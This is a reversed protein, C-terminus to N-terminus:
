KSANKRGLSRGAIWALVAVVLLPFIMGLWALPDAFDIQADTGPGGALAAEAVLRGEAAAARAVAPKGAVIAKVIARLAKWPAVARAAAGRPGTENFLGRVIAQALGLAGSRRAPVVPVESSAVPTGGARSRNPATSREMAADDTASREAYAGDSRPRLRDGEARAAPKSDFFTADLTPRAVVRYAGPSELGNVIVVLLALSAIAIVSSLAVSLATSWRQYTIALGPQRARSSATVRRRSWFVLRFFGAGAPRPENGGAGSGARRYRSWLYAPVLTAFVLGAFFTVYPVYPITPSFGGGARGDVAALGGRAGLGRNGNVAAVARALLREFLSHLARLMGVGRGRRHRASPLAVTRVAVTSAGATAVLRAGVLPAGVVPIQTAAPEPEAAPNLLNGLAAVAANERAALPGAAPSAPVPAPAVPLLENAPEVAPATGPSTGPSPPGIPLSALLVAREPPTLKPLQEALADLRQRVEPSTRMPPPLSRVVRQLIEDPSLEGESAPGRGPPPVSGPLAGLRLSPPDRRPPASDLTTIRERPLAPEDPSDPLSGPGHSPLEEGRAERDRRQKEFFEEPTPPAGKLVTPPDGDRGVVTPPQDSRPGIPPPDARPGTPPQDARAPDGGPSVDATPPRGSPDSSPPPSGAVPAPGTGPPAPPPVPAAGVPPAAPAAAPARPPPAPPDQSDGRGPAGSPPLAHGDGLSGQQGQDSQDHTPEGRAVAVGLSLWLLFVFRCGM